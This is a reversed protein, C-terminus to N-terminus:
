EFKAKSFYVTQNDPHYKLKSITNEGAKAHVYIWVAHKQLQCGQCKYGIFDQM